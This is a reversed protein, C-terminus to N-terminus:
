PRRYWLVGVVAVAAIIASGIIWPTWDFPKVVSISAYGVVAGISASVTGKGTENQATYTAGNMYGCDTKWTFVLNPIVNDYQDLGTAVFEVVQKTSVNVTGPTLVIHTLQDPVIVVDALGITSGVIARVQGTVGATTQAVFAGNTVTGVNSTWTVSLGSITNNWQDYCVADFQVSKGAVMANVSGPTVVIHDLVDPVINVSVSAQVVGYTARVYGIGTSTQATLLSDNMTGVNTSWTFNLGTVENNYQDYGVATFNLTHDAVLDTTGPTIIIYTLQNNGVSVTATGTKGLVSANVYGTIGATNQATFLGNGDITGIDTTWTFVLGPISNNYQDYGVASFQKQASAALNTVAAPTVNIHDLADPVIKIASTGNVVGSTAKAWGTVGAMKQATLVSGNMTGVNTTWTFMLGDVVNNFKDYGVATLNLVMGAAVDTSSPTVLIYSLQAFGVYVRASGTISGVTANVYGSAGSQDQATFMGNSDVTGVDTTWTFVLGSISNNFQDYGVASFQTTTGALANPVTTPTVIIHDLADPVINVVATANVVGNTAMVYGTATNKQGNLTTGSMTGVNTTWDFTMGIIPNNANDYGVALFEHSTNAVVNITNPTITIYALPGFIVTVDATGNMFGSPTVTTGTVARVYGIAPTQQAAFLGTQTITGVNTEWFWTLGPISNNYADQGDATFQQAGGKVVFTMAPTVNVHDLPGPVITVTAEGTMVGNKARVYGTVGATKNATLTTGSMTGVNTEWAFTVGSMINGYQNIADAIFNQTHGAMVDKVTPSVRISTLVSKIVQSTLPYRDTAVGGDIAYPTDVIGFPANVDPTTWDKWYNGGTGNDWANGTDDYAQVNAASYTATSGHNDIFDNQYVINNGGSHIWVGYALNAFFTSDYFTNYTSLMLQAGPYNRVITNNAFTNSHSDYLWLGSYGDRIENFSVISDNTHSLYIGIYNLSASQNFVLVNTCQNLYVGAWNNNTVVDNALIGNVVNNLAIGSDPAYPWSSVGGNANSVTCDRVIFYATTNGIYIGYGLGTADISYGEIVYPSVLTGAGSTVGNALTFDADSDIRIPAHTVYTPAQARPSNIMQDRLSIFATTYATATPVYPPTVTPGPPAPPQAGVIVNGGATDIRLLNSSTSNLQKTPFGIGVPYVVPDGIIETGLIRFYYQTSGDNVITANYYFTNGKTHGTTTFPSDVTALTTWPGTSSNISLQVIYGSEAISNDTWTMNIWNNNSLNIVGNLNSAPVPAVAFGVAHMMDMEEHELLHCHWVYEWGYNIYHNTVIQSVASPDFFGGPPALLLEGEPKTPDILRVANPVEWPLSPSYPRMAVITVSLPDVRVTEKWGIENLDPAYIAGDWGVRNILQVNMLHWHMAHTDVGNHTIAWIQTGDGQVPTLPYMNDTLLDVPPSAYGLPIFMQTVATGMNVELGLTGSMRGYEVDYSGGMEDHIAKPELPITVSNGALTTFTMSGDGIRVYNNNSFSGGYAANYFNQPVLVPDQSLQFVSKHASTNSFADFLASFDYAPASTKNAVHIQMITRTNPGYGPLTNAAGGSATQDGDGTFYDNRPDKAPFGGPADNYLILTKGAYASFDVIVDAREASGLLLSHDQVNGYTFTKANFNYTVPQQPIVVPSPLFGGETGIQIWNPGSTAPDPVGGFRGDTPWLAPYGPTPVAPVMKVETNTRGDWTTVSPDAVYMQLNYFRDNAANLIRFRVATPDVTLVPYAQGNVVSTDMFAEMTSSVNPVGPIMPPEVSNPDSPNYYPNPVPGYTISTPPFFWPGYDWRGLDNAGTPSYPNQNPMYVHPFWLDGTTPTIGNSGWAWTPDQYAITTSDVFTKDQIILPIGYLNAGTGSPLIGANILQNEISDTLLYGAAEGAYVNLRTIGYSHDHYFMLRASQQNTYYFTMAGPGPDNSAGPAPASTVGVTDPVVQGNVFWMDPVYEVSVGKPYQTTEGAPTIWQHPTGDSIWPTAGGHLHLTARNQTYNEFMMPNMLSANPGMGAGMTTTDVPIFLNGNIGIPLLNYFTVRTPIDRSAVLVPGLYSPQDMGYAQSGDPMLIASGDPNTLAVHNSYGAIAPTELQVYGVLLTSPLDSSFKHMYRVVAIEYYDCGPYTTLDPVGIGIYNGLNNANSAGLGPLTDIFKRIGGTLAGDMNCTLAAGSGTPDAIKAIPASYGSGGFVVNISYISGSIVVATAIAGSGTGWADEITVVPNSYRTGSNDVTISTISGTPVPSNAYNAYPGFYHPVGGPDMQGLALNASTNKVNGQFAMSQTSLVYGMGATLLFSVVLLVSIIKTVSIGGIKSDRKM